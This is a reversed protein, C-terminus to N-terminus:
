ENKKIKKNKILINLEEIFNKLDKFERYVSAFRVYAIDDISQLREMVFEGIYETPIEKKSLTFINNELEKIIQEMTSTSVPRKNCALMLSKMIKDRDFSERTFDRKVVNIQLLDIKEYTTFRENCKECLRRRKISTNEDTSRTDIVKTDLNSCFPCRM